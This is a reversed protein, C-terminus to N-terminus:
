KAVDHLLLESVGAGGGGGGGGARKREASRSDTVTVTKINLIQCRLLFEEM